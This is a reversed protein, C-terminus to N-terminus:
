TRGSGWRFSRLRLTWRALFRGGSRGRGCAPVALGGARGRAALDPRGPVTPTLVGRPTPLKTMARNEWTAWGLIPVGVAILVYAVRWHKDRSPFMAIVNAAILWVLSLALPLLAAASGTM